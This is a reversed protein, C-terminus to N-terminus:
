SLSTNDSKERKLDMTQSISDPHLSRTDGFTTSQAQTSEGVQAFRLSTIASHPLDAGVFQETDVYVGASPHDRFYIRNNLSVLLTNSYIKGLVGTTFTYYIDNPFAVYLGFSVVAVSATLANTEITLHVLRILISNSFQGGSSRTRRLLLTMAVAILIDALASPISWLFAIFVCFWSSRRNLTWIRYCFYEQVLFSIMSEIIPIDYPAFHSDKLRKVDGFGQMFWYYVDAGVMATQVSELFFAVYALCKVIPKDDPFNYSYVDACPGNPYEDSFKLLSVGVFRSAFLAMYHGASIPATLKIIDSPIPSSGNVIPTASIPSASM